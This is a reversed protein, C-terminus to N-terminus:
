ENPFGGQTRSNPNNKMPALRAVLFACVMAVFFFIGYLTLKVYIPMELPKWIRLGDNVLFVSVFVIAMTITFYKKGKKKVSFVSVILAVLSILLGLVSSAGPVVSLALAFLALAIALWGAVMSMEVIRFYLQPAGRKQPTGSSRRTLCGFFCNSYQRL